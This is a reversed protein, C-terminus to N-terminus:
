PRGAITQGPWFSGAIRLHGYPANPNAIRWLMKEAAEYATEEILLRPRSIRARAPTAAENLLAVLSCDEPVRIRLQHLAEMVEDADEDIGVLVASPGSRTFAAAFSDAGEREGTAHENAAVTLGTASMMEQFAQWRHMYGRQNRIDGVYMINRHGHRILHSVAQCVAEYVDWVVSDARTGPKPYNILVKPVHLQLLKTEMKSSAQRPAIFLGDASLLHNHEAWQEFSSDPVEEDLVITNLLHDIRALRETLGRLLLRNYNMASQSQVLVFRRTYASYPAIGRSTLERAQAPTLYGCQWAAQVIRSRTEESMGPLGRLAKSITQVSLNLRASLDALTISKRTAM